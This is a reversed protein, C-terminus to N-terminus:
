INAIIQRPTQMCKHVDNRQTSSSINKILHQKFYWSTALQSVFLLGSPMIVNEIKILRNYHKM